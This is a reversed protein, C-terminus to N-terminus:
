LGGRLYAIVDALDQKSLTKEIDEPMLSISSARIEQIQPRLITVDEESGGRLTVAGPTENALVGDYMRGDTTTILYNVFRQEIAASPNLIATLLEDKTKMNIGSLDPGVRGGQKRPQHCRACADEFVQKGHGVEGKLALADQYAMVVKQRDGGASQLIKRARELLKPDSLELLRNRAGIELANVEMKNTELADLLIPIRDKQALMAGVAKSRGEPSFAKWYGLLAPAVGPDEFSSLALIAASQVEPPPNSALVTQVVQQARAFTAGRLAGMALVRKNVPLEASQAEKAARDILGRTDFYRAVEWAAESGADLYATLAGEIGPVQLRRAGALKLGRALGALGAQTEGARALSSVFNRIERPAKRSGVLAGLTSTMEKAVAGKSQLQDFFEGPYNAVSSLVAPRIWKDTQYRAALAVLAPKAAPSKLNGMTLALQFQVRADPDAALALINKELAPFKEAMQIAHPRIEPQADKLGSEVIAADLAGYDSLLYLARLRAPASTSKLAKEKLLPIATKDMRELLLRHATERHWGNAHELLTVLEPTSAKGIEVRVGRKLKSRKSQIRYIRGLTDGSYFNMKKRLEEPISVPTEIFERQMDMVYLNGDPGNEFNTPRFWQDTSALFEVKKDATKPAPRAIFTAGDPTLIDRRVLNASVDGTFLSGRYEDPWADGSYLTSGTAGTFTGALIETRGNKLEDFRQQRMKTRLVRWEQPETLPYMTRPFDGYPDNMTSGIELMPARVLYSRPLVVHRLHVTNQAIFRNGWDDITAGYQATGSTVEFIGKQPHYRFDGGRVQVPPHNPHKPSKILGEAGVNSFYIWGDPGLRPNSIQGEPNGHFFGTFWVERVDAKGDGNTDKFYLIEPSAPVILGGNWPYLGSSHLTNEAFITAKDARGDSDTDELLRIRGRAPKGPPPDDPLDRMEAVYARGYEDFAMDVPDMVDPEAAFLVAEFDDSFHLSKLGEAPTLAGKPKTSTCSIASFLLVPVLAQTVFSSLRSM